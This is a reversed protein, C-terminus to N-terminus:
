AAWRETWYTESATLLCDLGCFTDAADDLWFVQQPDRVPDDTVSDCDPAMCDRLTAALRPEAALEATLAAAIVHPDAGAGLMALYFARVHEQEMALDHAETPTYTSM